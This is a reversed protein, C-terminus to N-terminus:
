PTVDQFDADVPQTQILKQHSITQTNMGGQIAGQQAQALLTLMDKLENLGSAEAKGLSLEVQHKEPRKLHTLLSNAAEVRVKQSTAFLMMEAQVNIAQQYVDQNLVWVPVLTQELVLNVLKGKNYAAVYASIEKTDAGRAVLSTYRDPFTRAYSEQNNFGMLKLSVYTVASIYDEAKFKGEQLVRTYSILNDRLSKAFDPDANYQNVRDALEQSAAGKMHAPLAERLEQVTLM